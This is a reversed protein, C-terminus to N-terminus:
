KKPLRKFISQNWGTQPDTPYVLPVITRGPFHQKFVMMGAGETMVKLTDLATMNIKLRQNPLQDKLYNELIQNSQIEFYRKEVEAKVADFPQPQAEKKDIVRYIVYQKTETLVPGQLQNVPTRFAQQGLVGWGGQTFYGTLGGNKASLERKSFQRALQRMDAGTQIRRKLDLAESESNVLIEQVNVMAPTMFLEPHAAYYNQFDADTPKYQTSIIKQRWYNGLFSDKWIRTEERVYASQDLGRKRGETVLKDFEIMLRISHRLSSRFAQISKDSLPYPGIQLRTLIDRITWHTGDSFNAFPEDWYQKLQDEVKFLDNQLNQPPRALNGDAAATSDIQLLASLKNALFEFKARPVVVRVDQMTKQIFESFMEGRRRQRVRKEISPRANAYDSETLFINSKRDVLKFFYFQNDIEMPGIIANLTSNYLTDELIPLTEGWKLTRTPISDALAPNHFMHLAAVKEFVEGRALQDQIIETENKSNVVMYRVALEQKSRLYSRRIEADTIRVKKAIEEDFLAEVIAEHKLQEIIQALAQLTDAQQELALQVLLKESLLSALFYHKNEIATAYRYVRPTFEFRNQFENVTLSQDGIQALRPYQESGKKECNLFCLLLLATLGYWRLRFIRNSM